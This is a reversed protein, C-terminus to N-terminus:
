RAKFNWKIGEPTYEIKKSQWLYSLIIKLTQHIVQKSLGRRIDAISVAKRQRILFEEVMLITGLNPLRGNEVSFIKSKM